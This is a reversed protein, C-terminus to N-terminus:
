HDDPWGLYAFNQSEVPWRAVPEGAHLHTGHQVSDRPDHRYAYLEKDIYVEDKVLPRVQGRWTSDEPWGVAFSGKQAIERKLPQVHTIDRYLVGPTDHPENRISLVSPPGYRDMYTYSVNFGIIDPRPETELFPRIMPVFDDAVMDDDDIFSVYDGEAAQLLRDRISGIGEEGNNSCALVHVNGAMECQPLLTDLLDLFKEQRRSLTAILIQWLIDSM